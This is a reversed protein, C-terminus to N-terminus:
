ERLAALVGDVFALVAPHAADILHGGGVWEVRARPIAAAVVNTAEAFAPPSEAAAVLLTAVVARRGSRRRPALTLGIRTLERTAQRGFGMSMALAGNM